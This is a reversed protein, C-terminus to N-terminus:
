IRRSGSQISELTEWGSQDPTIVLRTIQKTVTPKVFVTNYEWWESGDCEKRTMQSGDEFVIILDTAVKQSGFGVDYDIDALVKFEEWTCEYGSESGIFVIQEPTSGKKELDKITEKLLNM